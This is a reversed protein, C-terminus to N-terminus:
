QLCPEQWYSVAMRPAPSRRRLPCPANRAPLAMSHFWFISLCSPIGKEGRWSERRDPYARETWLMDWGGRLFTVVPLMKRVIVVCRHVIPYLPIHRSDVRVFAVRSGDPSLQAELAGDSEPRSTLGEGDRALYLRGDVLESQVTDIRFKWRKGRSETTHYLTYLKRSPTVPISLKEVPCIARLAQTPTSVM